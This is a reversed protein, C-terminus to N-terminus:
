FDSPLQSASHQGATIPTNASFEGCWDNALVKAWVSLSDKLYLGPNKRCEGHPNESNLFRQYPKYFRCTACVRDITKDNKNENMNVIRENMNVIRESINIIRESINIITPPLM